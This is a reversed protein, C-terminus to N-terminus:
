ADTGLRLTWPDTVVTSVVTDVACERAVYEASDELWLSESAFHSVDVLAPRGNSLEARERSELAPHHRLDATVFVDADQAAVVDLLSDGAGGLIAIKQVRMDPDGAVRVGGATAPVAAAVDSAFDRLSMELPLSGVRGLGIAPEDLHPVIPTTERLDLARALADNVGYHAADANTHATFLACGAVILRHAIAGKPTDAAVSTVGRLMLPHHTVLLQAGCTIAEQATALTADVAFLVREVTADPDGVSLGVEDWEQAYEPPFRSELAQMVARVTAM